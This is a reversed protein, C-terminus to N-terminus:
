KLKFLIKKQTAQIEKQSEQMEDLKKDINKFAAEYEKRPVYDRFKNISGAHMEIQEHSEMRTEAKGVASGLYFIVASIAIALGISITTNKTIRNTMNQNTDM